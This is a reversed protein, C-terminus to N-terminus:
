FNGSFISFNPLPLFLTGVVQHLFPPLNSDQILKSVGQIYTCLYGKDMWLVSVLIKEVRESATWRTVVDRKEGGEGEM